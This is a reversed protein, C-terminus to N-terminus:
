GIMVPEEPYVKEASKPAAVSMAISLTGVRGVFMSAMVIIKGAASLSPTVGLSLGVTAFASVAEFTLREVPVGHETLTLAFVACLLFLTSFTIVMLARVVAVQPIQRGFVHLRDRGSLNGFSSILMTAFTTTKIGGGTSGPSAGVFMLFILGIITPIALSALNMTNFGATRASVSQFFAHSLRLLHDLGALSRDWELLAILGTGGLILAASVALVFKSQMSIEAKYQELLARIAKLRREPAVVDPHRVSRNIVVTRWVYATWRGVTRAYGYSILNRIVSFGLGGTIILVAIMGHTPWAPLTMLSDSSLTFGANCFASVSYFVAFWAKHLATQWPTTQGADPWGHYLMVAGLGELLFTVFLIQRLTKVADEFTAENLIDRVLVRERISMGSGFFLAFFTAFTVIGIGGMQILVLLIFQGTLTFHSPTDVVTLGTVCVASTATFLADLVGLERGTHTAKPMMLAATGVLILLLFGVVLSQSPHFKTAALRSGHRLLPGIFGAVILIQSVAIYMQAWVRSDVAEALNWRIWGMFVMQQAVVLMAILLHPWKRTFHSRLFSWSRAVISATVAVALKFAYDLVLFWVAVGTSVRIWESISENLYFGYEAILSAVVVFFLGFLIRDGIRSARHLRSLAPRPDNQPDAPNPAPHEAPM